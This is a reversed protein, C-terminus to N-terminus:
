KFPLVIKVKFDAFPRYYIFDGSSPRSQCRFSKWKRRRAPHFVPFIEASGLFFFVHVAAFQCTPRRAPALEEAGCHSLKPKKHKSHNRRWELHILRSRYSESHGMKARKLGLRHPWGDSQWRSQNDRSRRPAAAKVHFFFFYITQFKM